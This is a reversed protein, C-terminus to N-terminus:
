LLLNGAVIIAEVDALTVTEITKGQMLQTYRQPGTGGDQIVANRLAAGETRVFTGNVMAGPAVTVNVIQAAFDWVLYTIQYTDEAQLRAGSPEAPDAVPVDRQQAPNITMTM